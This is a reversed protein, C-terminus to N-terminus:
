PEEKSAVKWSVTIQPKIDTLKSWDGNGNAAGTIQFSYSGFEIGGDNERLQYTYEGQRKDYGYEYAGEPAAEVTVDKTIGEPGIPVINQGDVLALYISANKDNTFNRDGTLQVGGLSEPSVSINLSIDIANSGKNTITVVDSASSYDERVKGDTRKFFLTSNQEFTKGDYAAGNTKNILGQPDIIFNFTENNVTPLVVQYIDTDVSGELAGAGIENGEGLRGQSNYTREVPKPEEATISPENEAKAVDAEIGGPESMDGPEEALAFVPSFMAMASALVFATMKKTKLRM